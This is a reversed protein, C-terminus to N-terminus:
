ITYVGRHCIFSHIFVLTSETRSRYPRILRCRLPISILAMMENHIQHAFLLSYQRLTLSFYQRTDSAGHAFAKRSLSAFCGDSPPNVPLFSRCALYVQPTWVGSVWPHTAKTQLLERVEVTAASVASWSNNLLLLFCMLSVARRKM